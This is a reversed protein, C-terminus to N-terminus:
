APLIVELKELRPLLSRLLTPVARDMEWPQELGPLIREAYLQVMHLPHVVRAVGLARMAEAQNGDSLWGDLYSRELLGELGAPLDAAHMLFSAAALFPHAITADSWDLFVPGMKGVIVQRASLDGHEVSPGFPTSALAECAGVLGPISARLARREADSLGGTRGTGLLADDDLLVPIRSALDALSARPVGAVRLAGVDRAMVRQTEALRAMTALWAERPRRRSALIWGEVHELLLRGSSPDAAVVPPVLGPDVDALLGTVAVEHMFVLPVQKAWLRGRDTEVALLASRGWSRVQRVPGRRRLGRDELRAEIWASMDAYWGPRYWPQHDGAAPELAGDDIARGLETRRRELDGVQVWRAGAPSRGSRHIVEYLRDAAQGDPGRESTWAARLAVVDLGHDARMREVVPTVVQWPPPEPLRFGPLAGDRLVLVADDDPRRIAVHYRASMRDDYSAM